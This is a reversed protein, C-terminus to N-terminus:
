ITYICLTLVIAILMGAFFFPAYPVARMKHRIGWVGALVSAAVIAIPFAGLGLWAGGAAFLKVDGLGLSERAVFRDFIVKIVFGFAYGIAAAFVSETIGGTIWPLMPAAMLGIIFFPFLWVDPIIQHRLDTRSMMFVCVAALAFLPIYYLDNM